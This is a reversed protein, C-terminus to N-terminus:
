VWHNIIMIGVLHSYNPTYGMKLWVWIVSNTRVGGHQNQFQANATRVRSCAVVHRWRFHCNVAENEAKVQSFLLVHPSKGVYNNEPYFNRYILFEKFAWVKLYKQHKRWCFFMQGEGPYWQSREWGLAPRTGRWRRAKATDTLRLFDSPGRQHPSKSTVQTLLDVHKYKKM